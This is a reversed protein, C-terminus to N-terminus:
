FNFGIKAAFTGTKSSAKFSEGGYEEDIDILKNLDSGYSLGLYFKKFEVGVGIQWGYSFRSAGFGDDEFDDFWNIKDSDYEDEYESEALINGRFYLGAFPAINIADTLQYKYVLNVPVQISLFRNDIDDESKWAYTAGIGTEIFLPLSASVSIGKTWELSVGSMSEDIADNFNVSNYGFTIRSYNNSERETMTNSSILQASAGFSMTAAFALAFLKKM